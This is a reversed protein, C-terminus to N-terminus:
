IFLYLDSNLISQNKLRSAVNHELLEWDTKEPPIIQVVVNRFIVDMNNIYCM